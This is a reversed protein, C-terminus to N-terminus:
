AAAAWQSVCVRESERERGTYTLPREKYESAGATDTGLRTSWQTRDASRLLVRVFGVGALATGAVVAVGPALLVASGQRQGGEEQSDLRLRAPRSM